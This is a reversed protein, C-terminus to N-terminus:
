FPTPHKGAFENLADVSGSKTRTASIAADGRQKFYRCNAEVIPRTDGTTAVCIMQGKYEFTESSESYPTLM